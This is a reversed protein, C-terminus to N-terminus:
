QLAQLMASLRGASLGESGPVITDASQRELIQLAHSFHKTAGGSRGQKESLRGLVVHALVFGRDLFLARRLAAQAAAADGAEELLLAHRYHLSADCKDAEVAAACRRIAEALTDPAPDARGPLALACTAHTSAAPKRYFVADDFRTEAFDGFLGHGTEPPGVVLWGGDRMARRLRAIALRAQEHEFYMLVHRCLVVDFDDGVKLEEALNIRRWTVLRKLEPRVAYRECGAPEFYIERLGQPVGRFSWDSYVGEAARALFGTHIDTGLISLDWAPLDPILRHLLIALSYCEEGTCCGASWIRLRRGHERQAAILPPLLVRELVDFAAPERFFYTEGVTLQRALADVQASEISGDLWRQLMTQPDGDGADKATVALAGALEAWRGREFHLGTRATVRRSLAELVSDPLEFSM